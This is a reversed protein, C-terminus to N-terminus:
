QTNNIQHQADFLSEGKKVIIAGVMDPYKPDTFEYTGLKDGFDYNFQAGTVLESSTFKGAADGSAKVVHTGPDDNVWIVMTGPLVTLSSPTYQNNKIHIILNRTSSFTASPWTTPAATVNATAVPVAATTVAASPTSQPIATTTVAPAEPTAATTVATAAPVATTAPVSTTAPKAPQSTCGSAALLLVVLILAGIYTKM